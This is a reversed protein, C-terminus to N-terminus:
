VIINNADIFMQDVQADTLGLATALEAISPSNRDAFNGYEWVLKLNENTSANIATQAQDFLNNTKLVSRVAWMPVQQPVPSPPVYPNPTNGEALWALYEANSQTNCWEGTAQGDVYKQASSGSENLTFSIM